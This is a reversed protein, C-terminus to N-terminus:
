KQDENEKFKIAEAEIEVVKKELIDKQAMLEEMEASIQETTEIVIDFLAEPINEAMTTFVGIDSMDLVFQQKEELTNGVEMDSFIRMIEAVVIVGSIVQVEEAFREDTKIGDSILQADNEDDGLLYLVTEKISRILEEKKTATPITDIEYYFEDGNITVGVRKVARAKKIQSTVQANTLKKAKAKSKKAPEKAVDETEKALDIIKEKDKTM